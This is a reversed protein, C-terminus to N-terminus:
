FLVDFYKACVLCFVVEGPFRGNKRVDLMAVSLLNHRSHVLRKYYNSLFVLIRVKITLM